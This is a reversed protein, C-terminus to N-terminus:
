RSKGMNLGSSRLADNSNSVGPNPLFGLKNDEDPRGGEGVLPKPPKTWLAMIFLDSLTFLLHLTCAFAPNFRPSETAVELGACRDPADPNVGPCLRVEELSALTCLPFEDGRDLELGTELWADSATGSM